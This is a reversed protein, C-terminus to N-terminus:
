RKEKRAALLVPWFDVALPQRFASSFLSMDTMDVVSCLKEAPCTQAM